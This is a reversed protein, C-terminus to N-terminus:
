GEVIAHPDLTKIQATAKVEEATPRTGLDVAEEEKANRDARQSLMRLM